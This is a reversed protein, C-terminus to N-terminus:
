SIFLYTFVIGEKPVIQVSVRNRKDFSISLFLFQFDCSMNVSPLLILHFHIHKNIGKGIQLGSLRFTLSALVSANILFQLENVM